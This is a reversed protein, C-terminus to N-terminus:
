QSTVTVADTAGLIRAGSANLVQRSWHSDACLFLMDCDLALAAGEAEVVSAVVARIKFDEATAALRAQREAVEVKRLRDTADEPRHGYLRNQNKKEIRDYDLTVLEGIGLRALQEIVCSGVSGAGPV